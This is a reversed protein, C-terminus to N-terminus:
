ADWGNRLSAEAQAKAFSEYPGDVEFDGRPRRDIVAWDFIVKTRDVSYSLHRYIYFM